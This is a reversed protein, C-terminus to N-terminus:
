EHRSARDASSADIDDLLADVDAMDDTSPATAPESVYISELVPFPSDVKGLEYNEVHQVAEEQTITMDKVMLMLKIRDPGAMERVPVGDHRTTRQSPPTRPPKRDKRKTRRNFLGPRKASSSERRAPEVVEPGASPTGEGAGDSEFVVMSGNSRRPALPLDDEDDDEDSSYADYAANGPASVDVPKLESTGSDADADADARAAEVAARNAAMVNMDMMVYGEPVTSPPESADVQPAFASGVDDYAPEATIGVV